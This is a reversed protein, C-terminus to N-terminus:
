ERSLLNEIVCELADVLDHEQVEKDAVEIEVDSRLRYMRELQREARLWRKRANNKMQRLTKIVNKNNMEIEGEQPGKPWGEPM